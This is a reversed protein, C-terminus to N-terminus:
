HYLPVVLIDGLQARKDGWLKRSTKLQGWYLGRKELFVWCERAVFSDGQHRYTFLPNPQIM